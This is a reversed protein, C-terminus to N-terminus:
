PVTSPPSRRGCVSAAPAAARRTGRARAVRPATGELGGVRGIV